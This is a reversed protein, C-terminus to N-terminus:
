RTALLLNAMRYGALTTRSSYQYTTHVLTGLTAASQWGRPTNVAFDHILESTDCVIDDASCVSTAVSRFVAPVDTLPYPATCSTSRFVAAYDCIGYASWAADGFDLVQSHRVREPDALLVVGRIASKTATDTTGALQDLFEHVVMAGQSYGTLVIKQNPCSFRASTVAGWLAAVGQDKGGLYTPLNTGLLQHLKSRPSGTSLNATLVDVPLAPYNLVQVRVTKRGALRSMTANYERRLEPSISLDTDSTYHEGSGSAAIFVADTCTTSLAPLSVSRSVIKSASNTGAATVSYTLTTATASPDATVQWSAQQGVGGPNLDTVSVPNTSTTHLGPPLNLRLTVGTAVATGSDAVTATVTFPNPTYSTGSVSLASPGSVGLALPPTLDVSIDSLGYYTTVTRSAGPALAAPNWYAAYASDGTILGTPDTTYDWQSNYLHPWSAIVLRDPVTTTAGRLRAAAIHQSDALDAYVQFTDPIASGTYDKETTVAGVNPVWFPAGDNDNVDTDIMARVGVSHSVADNNTLTYSIAATDARGTDPNTVLQLRQHVTVGGDKWTSDDTAVDTATPTQSFTGSNDGYVADAGDVRITTYSTGTSPWGFSIKYSGTTPQGTADPFAGESFRGDSGVAISLRDNFPDSAAPGGNKGADAHASTTALFPGGIAIAAAVAVAMKIRPARVYGRM